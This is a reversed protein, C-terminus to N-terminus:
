NNNASELAYSIEAVLPFDHALYKTIQSNAVM